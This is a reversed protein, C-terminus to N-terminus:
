YFVRDRKQEEMRSDIFRGSGSTRQWLRWAVSQSCLWSSFHCTRPPNRCTKTAVLFRAFRFVSRHSYLGGSASSRNRRSPFRTKNGITREFSVGHSWQGSASRKRRGDEGNKMRTGLIPKGATRVAEVFSLLKLTFTKKRKKKYPDDRNRNPEFSRNREESHRSESIVSSNNSDHSNIV